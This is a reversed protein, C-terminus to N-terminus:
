NIEETRRFRLYLNFKIKKLTGPYLVLILYREDGHLLLTMSLKIEM